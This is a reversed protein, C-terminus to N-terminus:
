AIANAKLSHFEEESITAKDRLEALRGIEEAASRGTGAVHQIYQQTAGSGAKLEAIQREHMGKGCAILYVCVGLYPLVIIFLMWPVKAGGGLDRDRFLDRSCTLLICIWIFFMTFWISSWFVSGSGFEALTNV